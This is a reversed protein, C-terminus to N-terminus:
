DHKQLIYCVGWTDAGPNKGTLFEESKLLTFGSLDALMEIEPTSFHRMSHAEKLLEYENNLKNKIIMEYNVEVINKEHLM